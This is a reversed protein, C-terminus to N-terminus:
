PGSDRAHLGASLSAGTGVDPAGALAVALCSALHTRREVGVGVHQGTHLALGDLSHAIDEHLGCHCLELLGSPPAVSSTRTHTGWLRSANAGVVPGLAASPETQTPM